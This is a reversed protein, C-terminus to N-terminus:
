AREMLACTRRPWFHRAAKETFEITPGRGCLGDVRDMRRARRTAAPSDDIPRILGLRYLPVLESFFYHGDCVDSAAHLVADGRVDHQRIYRDCEALIAYSTLDLRPKM